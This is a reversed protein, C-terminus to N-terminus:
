RAGEGLLVVGITKLLIRLDLMVSMNKIYYLEYELKHVADEFSAGYPYKVQAWGTIGPTITHRINYYPIQTALEEVFQPREPRPGVLSMDGKFVNWIQPLEDIRFMRIIRGVRTVRPDRKQAWKVGHAEADVVMSRFKYVSFVKGGKGVREQKYFVPGPSEFRIALATLAMLPATLALLLGSVAFDILRKVRQVYGRSLLQFGDSFLLWQDEIHEVPVRGTLREYINPMEIVEIGKLRAELIKRTAWFPRNRPIALIATKAGKQAAIETLQDLSGLVYPSREARGQASFGNDLYGQVEYPSFPSNLLQHIERASEGEGVVLAKIKPRKVQSLVGYIIRWGTLVLGALIVQITLIGQSSQVQPIFHLCAVSFLM